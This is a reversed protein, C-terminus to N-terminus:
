RLAWKALQRSVVIGIGDLVVAGSLLAWGLPQYLLLHLPHAGIAQGLALGVLPLAALMVMTAQPAALAAQMERRLADERDMAEGLRELVLAVRGGASETVRWTAAVARLRGAGPLDAGAELEAAASGGVEISTAAAVLVPRLPGAAASAALLAETTTRGARLEAALAFTAEVVAGEAATRRRGEDSVRRLVSVGVPALGGLAALAIPLHMATLGSGIAGGILLAQPRSSDPRVRVQATPGRCDALRQRATRPRSVFVAGAALVAALWLTV